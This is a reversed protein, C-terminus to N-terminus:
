LSGKPESIAIALVLPGVQLLTDARGETHITGYGEPAFRVIAIGCIFGHVVSEQRVDGRNQRLM